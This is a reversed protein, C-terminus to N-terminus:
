LCGSHFPGLKPEFGDSSHLLSKLSSCSLAPCVMMPSCAPCFLPAVCAPDFIPAPLFIMRPLYASVCNINSNRVIRPAKSMKPVIVTNQRPWLKAVTHNLLFPSRPCIIKHIWFHYNNSCKTHIDCISQYSNCHKLKYL